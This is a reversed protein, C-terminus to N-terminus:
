MLQRLRLRPPGCAHVHYTTHRGKVAEGMGRKRRWTLGMGTGDWSPHARRVPVLAAAAKDSAGWQEGAWQSGGTQETDGGGARALIFVGYIGAPLWPWARPGRRGELQGASAQRNCGGRDRTLGHCGAASADAGREAGEERTRHQAPRLRAKRDRRAPQREMAGEAALPGVRPIISSFVNLFM